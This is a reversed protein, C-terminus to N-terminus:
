KLEIPRWGIVRLGAIQEIEFGTDKKFFDHDYSVHSEMAVVELKVQVFEGDGPTDTDPDRWSIADKYGAEYAESMDNPSYIHSRNHHKDETVGAYEAAKQEITKMIKNM